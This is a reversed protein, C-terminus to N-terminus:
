LNFDLAEFFQSNKPAKEKVWCLSLQKDNKQQSTHIGLEKKKNNILTRIVEGMSQETSDSLFKVFEHEEPTTLILMQKTLKSKKMVQEKARQRYLYSYLNKPDQWYCLYFIQISYFTVNKPQNYKIM